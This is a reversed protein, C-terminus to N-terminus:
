LPTSRSPMHLYTHPPLTLHYLHYLHLSTLVRFRHTGPTNARTTELVHIHTYKLAQYLVCSGYSDCRDVLAPIHDNFSPIHVSLCAKSEEIIDKHGNFNNDFPIRTHSAAQLVQVKNAINSSPNRSAPSRQLVTSSGNSCRM